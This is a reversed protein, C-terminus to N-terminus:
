RVPPIHGSLSVSPSGPPSLSLGKPRLSKNPKRGPSLQPPLAGAPPPNTLVPVDDPVEEVKQTGIGRIINETTAPFAAASLELSALSLLHVPCVLSWGCLAHPLKHLR